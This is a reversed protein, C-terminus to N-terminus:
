QFMGQLKLKSVIQFNNANAIKIPTFEPIALPDQEIIEVDEDQKIQHQKRPRGRRPPQATSTALVRLQHASLLHETHEHASSFRAGCSSFVCTLSSKEEEQEEAPSLSDNVHQQVHNQLQKESPFALDCLRCTHKRTNPVRLHVDGHTDRRHAYMHNRQQFREGCIPCDYSTEMPRGNQHRKRHQNLDRVYLDYMNEFFMARRHAYMHNRQQFREGCIPCDYSTEMPRGNQHRKRHQNLNTVQAYAKDCGPEPCVFPREGTHLRMHNNLNTVQTFAKGCVNCKYPRENTHIRLHARLNNSQSFAKNCYTCVFRREARHNRIHAQLQGNKQFSKRCIGCYLGLGDSDGAGGQDNKDGEVEVEVMMQQSQLHESQEGNDEITIEPVLPQCKFCAYVGEKGTEFLQVAPKLCIGCKDM